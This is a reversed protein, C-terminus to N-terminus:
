RGTGVRPDAVDERDREAPLRSRRRTRWSRNPKLLVANSQMPVVCECWFNADDGWISKREEDMNALFAKFAEQDICAPFGNSRQENAIPSQGAEESNGERQPKINANLDIVAQGETEALTTRKFHGPKFWGCYGVVKSPNETPVVKFYILDQGELLKRIRGVRWAFLEDTPTLYAKEPPFVKSHLYNTAMTKSSCIFVAEADDPTAQVVQFPFGNADDMILISQSDYHIPQYYTLSREPSTHGSM